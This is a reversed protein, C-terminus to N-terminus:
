AARRPYCRGLAQQLQQADALLFRVDRGAWRLLEAVEASDPAHDMAVVLQNGIARLPLARLRLALEAPIADMARADIGKDLLDVEDGETSIQECWAQCLDAPECLGWALAIEGFKRHSYVQETLIEHVDIDSIKGMRSLIEGMRARSV